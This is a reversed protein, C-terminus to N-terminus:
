FIHAVKKVSGGTTITPPSDVEAWNVEEAEPNRVVWVHMRGAGPMTGYTKMRVDYWCGRDFTYEKEYTYEIGHINRIMIRNPHIRLMVRDNDAVYRSHVGIFQADPM